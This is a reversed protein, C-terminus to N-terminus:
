SQYYGAPNSQHNTVHCHPNHTAAFLFFPRKSKLQTLFYYWAIQSLTIEVFISGVQGLLV